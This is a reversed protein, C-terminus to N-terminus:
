AALRKKLFKLDKVFQKYAAAKAAKDPIRLLSSPHVTVVAQAGNELPIAKGRLKAITGPRGFVATVATSGLVLVFKPQILELERKLWPYCAKIEKMGPKSHIRRKGRPEFKFHKVANTVYARDVELGAEEMAKRLLGGAPGVFPKGALDEKDGPQEGVIVIKARAPGEGFVAQTANRWLPCARCVAAAAREAAISDLEPLLADRKERTLARVM